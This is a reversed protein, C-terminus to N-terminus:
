TGDALLDLWRDAELRLAQTATEARAQEGAAIVRGSLVYAAGDAGITDGAAFSVVTADEAASLLSEPDLAELGPARGLLIARELVDLLSDGNV